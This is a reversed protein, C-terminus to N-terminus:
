CTLITGAGPAIQVRVSERDPILAWDAPTLSSLLERGGCDIKLEIRDGFDRVLRIQGHLLNADKADRPYVRVDEPRVCLTV